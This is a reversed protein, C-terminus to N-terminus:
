TSVVRVGTIRPLPFTRLDQSRRDFATLTGAEVSVPDVTHETAEGNRDVYGIAVGARSEVANRLLALIEDPGAPLQAPRDASLRDGARVTALVAKIRATERAADAATPRRDKPTRARLPEPRVVRVTGDPAEVVPAAGLDRLRPLLVDLPTPSVLVTPALRRLGLSAASRNHLLETLTAADEAWVYSSAQGVRLGGFAREVDDVLYTLPQPVPTASVTGLFAHVEAATWGADFGRRISDRTFRYVTAGGRSEVDALVHLDRARDSVLPGPAVATLDAQVLVQEVPDPLQPALAAAAAVPDGQLLARAPAALAALGTIGLTAAERLAWIVLDARSDLRRPRQWAVRAVVSPPGTGSALAAGAPLCALVDLTMRRAEVVGLGALEPALANRTRGTGTDKTGALAANRASDLWAAALRVWREAIPQALWQDYADTPLWVSGGESVGTGVLGAGAAVEVLLATDAPEAHLLVAAQKLDRVGLGGSRLVAPPATGWHDLLLEIRRVAEFAAGAAVREVLSPARDTTAIEPREAAVGSGAPGLKDTLGALGTLARLGDPAEWVLVLDILRRLVTASAGPDGAMQGILDEPACPSSAVVAGVVALEQADLQDLARRLSAPSAAKAALQASDQPMPSLLDPRSELLTSLRDDSWGRLQDAITRPAAASSM